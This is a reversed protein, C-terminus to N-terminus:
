SVASNALWKARVIRSPKFLFSFFFISFFSLIRSGCVCVGGVEKSLPGDHFILSWIWCFM